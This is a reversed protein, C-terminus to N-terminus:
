VCRSTYLLCIDFQILTRGREAADLAQDLVAGRDFAGARGARGVQQTERGADLIDVVEIGIEVLRQLGSMARLAKAMVTVPEAGM